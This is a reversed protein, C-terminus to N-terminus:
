SRDLAEAQWSIFGYRDDSALFPGISVIFALEGDGAVGPCHFVDPDHGITGAETPGVPDDKIEMEFRALELAVRAWAAPARVRDPDGASVASRQVLRGRGRLGGGAPGLSRSPLPRMERM